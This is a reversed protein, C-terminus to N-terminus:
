GRCRARPPKSGAVNSPIVHCAKSKVPDFLQEAKARMGIVNFNATAACNTLQDPFRGSQGDPPNDKGRIALSPSFGPVARTRKKPTGALRLYDDLLEAITIEGELSGHNFIEKLRKLRAYIRVQYDSMEPLIAVLVM